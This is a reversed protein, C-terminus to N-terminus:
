EGGGREESRDVGEGVLTLAYVANGTYIGLLSDFDSGSTTFTYSGDAPATWTYWVSEGAAVNFINPEGTEASAGGTSCVTTGAPGTITWAQAFLDNAPQARGIGATLSVWALLGLCLAARRSPSSMNLQLRRM